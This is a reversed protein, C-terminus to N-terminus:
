ANPTEAPTAGQESGAAYQAVEHHHEQLFVVLDSRQIRVTAAIRFVALREEEIWRLVTRRSICLMTAVEAPSFVTQDEPVFDIFM